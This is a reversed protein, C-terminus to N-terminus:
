HRNDAEGNVEEVKMNIFNEVFEYTFEKNYERELVEKFSMIQKKYFPYGHTSGTNVPTMYEDGYIGKLVEKYNRMIPITTNEFPVRKHLVYSARDYRFSDMGVALEMMNGVYKTDEDMYFASLIDLIKKVEHRFRNNYNIPMGYTQEIDKMLQIEEESYPGEEPLTAETKLLFQMSEQLEKFKSEDDPVNDIPFIDIGVLYPCNHFKELFAKDFNIHRGNIVRAKILDKEPDNYVSTIDFWKDIVDPAERLFRYFDNRLMCVDIDDDWPIYGNHRVAGLLTGCMAYYNIGLEECIRDLEGLVELEAAWARKMTSSITFGLREEEEFFSKDFVLKNSRDSM